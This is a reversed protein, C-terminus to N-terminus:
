GGIVNLDGCASRSLPLRISPEILEHRTSTFPEESGKGSNRTRNKDM